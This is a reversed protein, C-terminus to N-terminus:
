LNTELQNRCVFLHLRLLCLKGYVFLLVIRYIKAYDGFHHYGQSFGYNGLAWYWIPHSLFYALCSALCLAQSLPHGLLQKFPGPVLSLITILIFWYSGGLYLPCQNVSMRGEQPCETFRRSSLPLGPWLTSSGSSLNFKQQIALYSIFM